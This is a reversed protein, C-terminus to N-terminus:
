GDAEGADPTGGAWREFLIALKEPTRDLFIRAKGDQVLYATKVIEARILDAYQERTLTVVKSRGRNSIYRAYHQISGM